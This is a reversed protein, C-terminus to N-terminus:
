YVVVGGWNIGEVTGGVQWKFDRENTYCSVKCLLGNEIRPILLVEGNLVPRRFSEKIQFDMPFIIPRYTPPLLKICFSKVNEVEVSCFDTKISLGQEKMEYFAKYMHGIYRIDTRIGHGMDNSIRYVFKFEPHLLFAFKSLDLTSLGLAYQRVIEEATKQKTAGM